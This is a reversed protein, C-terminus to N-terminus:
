ELPYVMWFEMEADNQWEEEKFGVTLYCLEKASPLQGRFHSGIGTSLEPVWYKGGVQATRITWWFMRGPQDAEGKSPLWCSYLFIGQTTASEEYISSRVDYGAREWINWFAASWQLMYYIDSNDCIELSVSFTVMFLLEKGKKIKLEM